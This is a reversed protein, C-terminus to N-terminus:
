IWECQTIAADELFGIRSWHDILRNIFRDPIVEILEYDQKLQKIRRMISTLKAKKGKLNERIIKKEHHYGKQYEEDYFDISKHANLYDQFGLYKKHMNEFARGFDIRKLSGDDQVIFHRDYVDYLCLVEHLYNMRGLSFQFNKIEYNTLDTGQIYNTMLYPVESKFKWFSKHYIGTVYIQFGLEPDFFNKTLHLALVEPFYHERVYKLFFLPENDLSLIRCKKFYGWSCNLLFNENRNFEILDLLGRIEEESIDSIDKWLFLNQLMEKNHPNM